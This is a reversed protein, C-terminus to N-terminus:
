KVGDKRVLAALETHIVGCALCRVAGKHGEGALEIEGGCPCVLPHSVQRRAAARLQEPLIASM